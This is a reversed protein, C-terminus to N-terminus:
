RGVLAWLRTASDYTISGRRKLHQQANRLRHKWAKGYREGNIILEESDDCLDPLLRQVRPALEATPVAGESLVLAIADGFVQNAPRRGVQTEVFRKSAEKVKRDFAQSEQAPASTVLRERAALLDRAIAALEGITTRDIPSGLRAYAELDQRIRRVVPRDCIRVGYEYNQDLGGRTLNASTIIAAHDDAIFVKAHLRAM